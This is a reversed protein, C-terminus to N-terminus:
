SHHRFVDMVLFFFNMNNLPSPQLAIECTEIGAAIASQSDLFTLFFFCFFFVRLKTTPSELKKVWLVQQLFVLCEHIASSKTTELLGREALRLTSRSLIVGISTIILPNEKINKDHILAERTRKVRM